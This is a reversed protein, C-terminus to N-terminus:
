SSRHWEPLWEPSRFAPLSGIVAQRRKARLYRTAIFLEFKLLLDESRERNRRAAQRGRLAEPEFRM